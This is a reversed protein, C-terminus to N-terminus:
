KGRKEPFSFQVKNDNDLFLIGDYSKGEKSIFGSITSTKRKKALDSLQKDTLKKGRVERWLAFRCSPCWLSKASLRMQSGCAPCSPLADPIDEPFVFAPKKEEDLKLAAAFPLGTAKSKFGNIVETMGKEYLDRFQANSLNKGSLTRYAIYGCGGCKGGREGYLLENGCSPCHISEQKFFSSLAKVKGSDRLDNTIETAYDRIKTSFEEALETNGDAIDQFDQEWHATMDVNAIAKDKVVDYVKLGKETPVLKNGKREIYGRGVLEEIVTDRTAATGIGVGKLAKAASKDTAEKGANEMKTLLTSETLIPKPKTMEKDVGMSEIHLDEGERMALLPDMTLAEQEMDEKTHDEDAEGEGCVARWGLSIRKRGRLTFTDDGASLLVTTVDVVCHPSFAEIFRAVVLDYVQREVESLPEDAKPTQGTVIFGHHDTLKTENVSRRCLTGGALAEAFRGYLPHSYLTELRAPVEHFINESIYRSSTRPYSILHKEYLAQAATATQRATLGYRSNAIKQLSAIDHLLPPAENKRETEISDVHIHGQALIQELHERAEAEDTYTDDSKITVQTGDSLVAGRIVWFPSPVFNRNENYRRCVMCLTPTQVRGLSLPEPSSSALTLARTANIGVLWDGESRLLAALGLDSFDANPSLAAFGDIIDKKTLSSIWLRMADLRLGLYRYVNDFILQGERGADGCNIIVDARSALDEIVALRHTITEDLIYSGDRRRGISIPEWSFAKPLVPLADLSWQGEAEPARLELLHGRCWTICYGAGEFWDGHNATAGLAKAIDRAVDRKETICLRM